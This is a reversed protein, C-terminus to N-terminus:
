SQFNLSSFPNKSKTIAHSVGMHSRLAHGEHFKYNLVAFVTNLTIELRKVDCYWAANVENKVQAMLRAPLFKNSIDTDVLGIISFVETILYQYLKTYVEAKYYARYGRVSGNTVATHEERYLSIPQGFLELIMSSRANSHIFQNFHEADPLEVMRTLGLINAVFNWAGEFSNRKFIDPNVYITTLETTDVDDPVDSFASETSDSESRNVTQTIDGYDVGVKSDTKQEIIREEPIRVNAREEANTHMMPLSKECEQSAVGGGCITPLQVINHTMEVEVQTPVESCPECYLHYHAHQLAICKKVDSCPTLDKVEVEKPPDGTGKKKERIRREAGQRDRYHYHSGHGCKTDSCLFGWERPDRFGDHDDFKPKKMSDKARAAPRETM